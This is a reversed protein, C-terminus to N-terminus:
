CGGALNVGVRHYFKNFSFTRKAKSFFSKEKGKKRKKHERFESSVSGFIASVKKAFVKKAFVEILNTVSEGSLLMENSSM